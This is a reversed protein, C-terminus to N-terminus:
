ITKIDASKGKFIMKKSETEIKLIGEKFIIGQENYSITQIGELREAIVRDKKFLIGSRKHALLRQDTIYLTYCADGYKITTPSQYKIVEKPFLFDELVM